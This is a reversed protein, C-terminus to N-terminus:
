GRHQGRAHHAARPGRRPGRHSLRHAHRQHWGLRSPLIPLLRAQGKDLHPLHAHHFRSRALRRRRPHPHAPPGQRQSEQLHPGFYTHRSLIQHPAAASSPGVHLPLFKCPFSMEGLMSYTSVKEAQESVVLRFGARAAALMPFPPAVSCIFIKAQNIFM